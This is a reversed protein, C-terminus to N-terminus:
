RIFNKYSVWGGLIGPINFSLNYDCISYHNIILIYLKKNKWWTISGNRSVKFWLM